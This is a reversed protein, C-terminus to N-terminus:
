WALEEPLPQFLVWLSSVELVSRLPWVRRHDIKLNVSYNQSWGSPSSNLPISIFPLRKGLEPPLPPCTINSPVDNSGDAGESLSEGTMPRNYHCIEVVREFLAPTSAFGLRALATIGPTSPSDAYFSPLFQLANTHSFTVTHADKVVKVLACHYVSFAIGFYDGSNDKQETIENILRSVSAQLCREDDLHTAICVVTDERVWTFEKRSPEPHCAHTIHDFIPPVFAISAMFCAISWQDDTLQNHDSVLEIDYIDKGIAPNIMCQGVMVELLSVRIHEDPSLFYNIALLDSLAVHSGTCLFSQYTALDSNDVTPPTPRKYRHEPPCQSACALNGYHDKSIYQIFDEDDPLCELSFFPMGNIHFINRDLDIEYVWEIMIDIELRVRSPPLLDEGGEILVLYLSPSELGDLIEGLVQRHTTIASPYQMSQLAKVGLGDPYSDRHHYQAFYLNRYRLVYYGRTGM